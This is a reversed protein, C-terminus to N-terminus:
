SIRRTGYLWTQASLLLDSKFQASTLAAAIAGVGAAFSTSSAHLVLLSAMLVGTCILLGPATQRVTVAIADWSMNM